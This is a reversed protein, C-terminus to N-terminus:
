TIAHAYLGWANRHLFNGFPLQSRHTNLVCMIKVMPAHELGPNPAVHCRGSYLFPTLSLAANQSVSLRGSFDRGVDKENEHM